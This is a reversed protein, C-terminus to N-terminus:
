HRKKRRRPHDDAEGDTDEVSGRRGRVARSIAAGLALAVAASVMPHDEVMRKAERGSKGLADQAKLRAAYAEERADIIRARASKSFEDLGETLRERMDEALDALIAAREAVFDRAEEVKESLGAAFEERYAAADEELEHLRISARARLRDLEDAWAGHQVAEIEDELEDRTRRAKGRLEGADEQADKKRNGLVLWALGLGVVGVAMPNRRIVAEATERAGGNTRLTHMAERMLMDATPNNLLTEFISGFQGRGAHLDDEFDRPDRKRSM